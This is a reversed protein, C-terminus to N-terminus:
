DIVLIRIVKQIIRRDPKQIDNKDYVNKVSWEFKASKLKSSLLFKIM